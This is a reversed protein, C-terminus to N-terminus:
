CLRRRFSMKSEHQGAQVSCVSIVAAKLPDLERSIIQQFGEIVKAALLIPDKGTHPRAGHCGVGHLRLTFDMVVVTQLATAYRFKVSM